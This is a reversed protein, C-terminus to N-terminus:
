DHIADPEALTRVGDRNNIINPASGNNSPKARNGDSAVAEGYSPLEEEGPQSVHQQVASITAM